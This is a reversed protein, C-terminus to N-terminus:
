TLGEKVLPHRHLQAVLDRALADAQGMASGPNAGKGPTAPVPAPWHRLAAEIAQPLADAVRRAEIASPGTVQLTGIRLSLMDSM